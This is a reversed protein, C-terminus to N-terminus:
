VLWVHSDRSIYCRSFTWDLRRYYSLYPFRTGFCRCWKLLDFLDDILSTRFRSNGLECLMMRFTAFQTLLILPLSNPGYNLYGEPPEIGGLWSLLDVPEPYLIKIDDLQCHPGSLEQVWAANVHEVLLRAKTCSQYATRLHPLFSSGQGEASLIVRSSADLISKMIESFPKM